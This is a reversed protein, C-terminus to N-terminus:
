EDSTIIGLQRLEEAIQWHLVKKRAWDGVVVWVALLVCLVAGVCVVLMARQQEIRWRASLRIFLEGGEWPLPDDTPGVTLPIDTGDAQEHVVAISTPLRGWEDVLVLVNPGQRLWDAPIHLRQQSLEGAGVRCHPNVPSWEWDPCKPAEHHQRRSRRGSTAPAPPNKIRWYRGLPRGNIYVFGKYLSPLPAAAAGGVLSLSSANADDFLVLSYRGKVLDIPEDVSVEVQSWLPLGDRWANAGSTTNGGATWEDASFNTSLKLREGQLGARHIWGYMRLQERGGAGKPPSIIPVGGWIGVPSFVSGVWPWSLGMCVSLIAIQNFHSPISLRVAPPQPQQGKSNPTPQHDIPTWTTLPTGDIFVQLADPESMEPLLLELRSHKKRWKGIQSAISTGSTHNMQWVYWMADTYGLTLIMQSQPVEFLVSGGRVLCQRVAAWDDGTLTNPADAWFVRERLFAEHRLEPSFYRYNSLPEDRVRSFDVM